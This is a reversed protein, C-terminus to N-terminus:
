GEAPHLRAIQLLGGWHRRLLGDPREALRRRIEGYLRDRQWDEMAIHGSFTSLLDIYGVADYKMEWCYPTIDVVEFRGSAEIEERDDDLEAPIPLKAGPPRSEGIEDYTEQLEEFIPDADPPFVHVAEWLALYGGPQLADAARHFRVTPDLWHWATAAFVLAFREDGPAWDEFQGEIVEVDFGALNVRAAAALAGGPEICTIRFWRQALPLTAKGTACGVELLRAGPALGTVALLHEYLEGPYEPRARQYRGAARDFTAALREREEGTSV